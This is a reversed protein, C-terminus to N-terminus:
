PKTAIDNFGLLHQPSFTEFRWRPRNEALENLIPLLDDKSNIGFLVMVRQFYSASRSRAFIEFAQGPLDIGAYLLTEPWWGDGNFCARMFLVFDAQMVQRFEFGLGTCRQKLLDARLSLRGLGLRETRHELSAVHERLDTFSVVSRRRDAWESIYYDTTMLHVVSEFREHRLLSAVAYLFLEHVLFRFNDFDWDRWTGLYHPRHLYPILREFFRHLASRADPGDRYLALGMFIEVAENRYPLFLEVSRVVEDDFPDANSPIRL